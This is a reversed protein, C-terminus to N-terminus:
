YKIKCIRRQINFMYKYIADVIFRHPKGMIEWRMIIKNLKFM